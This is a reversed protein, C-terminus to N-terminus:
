LRAYRLLEFQPVRRPETAKCTRLELTHSDRAAIEAEHIRGNARELFRVRWRCDDVAHSEEFRLDGIGTIGTESRIFYEAAQAPRAYCSRGRYHKLEIRGEAGAEVLAPVDEPSVHGYYIGFPMLVLNAAFRDGGVHSCQWAAGGAHTKLARWAARGFRACCKDHRGHTCVLWLPEGWPAGSHGTLAGPRLAMLDHYSSLEIVRTRPETERSRAIFLRPAAPRAPGRKIFLARCRPTDSVLRELHHRVPEPLADDPLGRAGWPGSHELLLWTDIRAVTAFLPEAQTRSAESCFFRAPTM